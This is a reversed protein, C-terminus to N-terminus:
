FCIWDEAYKPLALWTTPNLAFFFLLLTHQLEDFLSLQVIVILTLKVTTLLQDELKPIEPHYQMRLALLLFIQVVGLAMAFLWIWFPHVPEVM